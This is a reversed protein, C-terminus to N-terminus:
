LNRKIDNNVSILILELIIPINKDTKSQESSVNSIYNKIKELLSVVKDFNKFGVNSIFNLFNLIRSAKIVDVRFKTSDKPKIFTKSICTEFIDLFEDQRPETFSIFKKIPINSREPLAPPQAKSNNDQNAKGNSNGGNESKADNVNSKDSISIKTFEKTLKEDDFKENLVLNKYISLVLVVNDELPCSKLTDVIFRYSLDEPLYQLFKKLFKQYLKNVFKGSSHSDSIIVALTQLYTLILLKIREDNFHEPAVIAKNQEIRLVTIIMLYGVVTLNTLKSNVTYPILIKLQYEILSITSISDPLDIAANESYKSYTYLFILSTNSIPLETPHKNRFSSNNYSMISFKIIDEITNLEEKNRNVLQHCSEIEKVFGGVANIDLSLSLAILRDALEFFKQGIHVIGNGLTPLLKGILVQHHAETFKEVLVDFFLRILKGQLYCEDKFVKELDEMSNEGNTFMEEPIEPPIYGRIFLYLTRLVSIRGSIEPANDMFNIVTSVIISLFKSPYITKTREICFKMCEFLAHFKLVVINSANYDLFFKVSESFYNPDDVFRQKYEDDMTTAVENIQSEDSNNYEPERLNKIEESCTLLLEKPNGYEALLNFIKYFAVVQRSEGLGFRVPWECDLFPLLLPPLDWAIEALLEKNANLLDTLLEMLGLREDVSYVEWDHLYIDLMTSFSIFDRSEACEKACQQINEMVETYALSAMTDISEVETDSM